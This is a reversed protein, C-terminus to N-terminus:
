QHSSICDQLIEQQLWTINHEFLVQIHSNLRCSFMLNNQGVLGVSLGLFVSLIPTHNASVGIQLFISQLSFCVYCRLTCVLHCIVVPFQYNDM